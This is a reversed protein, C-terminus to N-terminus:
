KLWEEEDVHQDISKIEGKNIIRNVRNYGIFNRLKKLNSLMMLLSDIIQGSEVM